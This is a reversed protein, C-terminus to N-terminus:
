RVMGIEESIKPDLTLEKRQQWEWFDNISYHKADFRIM